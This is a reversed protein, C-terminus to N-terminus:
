QPHPPPGTKKKVFLCVSFFLFSTRAGRCGRSDKSTRQSLTGVGRWVADLRQSGASILAPVTAGGATPLTDSCVAHLQGAAGGEPQSNAAGSRARPFGAGNATRPRQPGGRLRQEAPEIELPQQRGAPTRWRTTTALRLLLLNPHPQLQPPSRPVTGPPLHVPLLQAGFLPQLLRPVSVSVDPPPSPQREAASRGSM